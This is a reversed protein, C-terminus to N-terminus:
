VLLSPLNAPLRIDLGNWSASVWEDIEIGKGEPASLVVESSKPQSKFTYGHSLALPIFDALSQEGPSDVVCRVVRGEPYIVVKGDDRTVVLYPGSISVQGMSVVEHDEQRVGNVGHQVTIGVNISM